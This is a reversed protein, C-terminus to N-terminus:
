YQIMEITVKEYYMEGIDNDAIHDIAFETDPIYFSGTGYECTDLNWFTVRYKRQTADMLGNAKISNFLDKEGQSLPRIELNLTTKFNPSTVRQLSENNDRWAKKEIRQDPTSRYRTLFSNPLQTNGFMVLYGRYDKQM